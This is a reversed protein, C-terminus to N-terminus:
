IKLKLNVRFREDEPMFLNQQQNYLFLPNILKPEDEEETEQNIEDRFHAPLFSIENDMDTEAIKKDQENIQTM